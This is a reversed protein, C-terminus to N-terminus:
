LQEISYIDVVCYYYVTKGDSSHRPGKDAPDWVPQVVSVTVIM